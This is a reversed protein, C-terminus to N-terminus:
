LPERDLSSSRSCSNTTFSRKALASEPAKQLGDDGKLDDGNLSPTTRPTNLSVKQSGSGISYDSSTAAEEDSYLGDVDLVV